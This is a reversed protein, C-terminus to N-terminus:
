VKSGEALTEEDLKLGAIAKEPTLNEDLTKLVAPDFGSIKPHAPTGFMETLLQAYESRRSPDLKLPDFVNKDFENRLEITDPTVETVPLRLADTPTHGPRNFGTPITQSILSGVILDSRVPFTMAEDYRNPNRCGPLLTLGMGLAATLVAIRRPSPSPLPGAHM